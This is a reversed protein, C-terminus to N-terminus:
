LEIHNSKIPEQVDSVDHLRNEGFREAMEAVTSGIMGKLVALQSSSFAGALAQAEAIDSLDRALKVANLPQMAIRLQGEFQSKRRRAQDREAVSLSSGEDLSLNVSAIEEQLFRAYDDRNELMTTVLMEVAGKDLTSGVYRWGRRLQRAHYYEANRGFRRSGPSGGNPYVSLAEAITAPYRKQDEPLHDEDRVYYAWAGGPISPIQDLVDPLASAGRRQRGRKSRPNEPSVQPRRVNLRETNAECWRLQHLSYGGPKLLHGCEPCPEVHEETTEKGCHPCLLTATETTM